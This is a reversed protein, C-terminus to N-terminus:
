STSIKYVIYIFECCIVCFLEKEIREDGRLFLPLITFKNASNPSFKTHSVKGCGTPLIVLDDPRNLASAKINQEQEPKLGELKLFEISNRLGVLNIPKGNSM